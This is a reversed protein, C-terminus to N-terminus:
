VEEAGEREGEGFGAKRYSLKKFCFEYVSYM